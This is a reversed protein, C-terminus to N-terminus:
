ITLNIKKFIDAVAPCIETNKLSLHLLQQVKKRDTHPYDRCANPRYEYVSCYNDDMLFPCPASKFVYDGDSDIKLYQEIFDVDKLRLHKALRSIDKDRFLPSTTKCCNACKLCDIEEFVEDHLDHFLGDVKRPNTKKLKTILKKNQQIEAKTLNIKDSYQMLSIYFLM